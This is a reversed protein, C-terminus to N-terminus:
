AVKRDREEPVDELARLKSVVSAFAAMLEKRRSGEPEVRLEAALTLRAVGLADVYSEKAIESQAGYSEQLRPHKRSDELLETYVAGLEEAKRVMDEASLEEVEYSMEPDMGFKWSLPSEKSGGSVAEPGSSSSAASFGVADRSRLDSIRDEETKESINGLLSEDPEIPEVPASGSAGRVYREHEYPDRPPISLAPASEKPELSAEMPRINEKSSKMPFPNEGFDAYIGDNHEGAPIEKGANGDSKDNRFWSRITEYPSFLRKALKGFFGRPEATMLEDLPDVVPNRRSEPPLVADSDKEGITKRLEAIREKIQEEERSWKDYGKDLAAHRPDGIRIEEDPIRVTESINKALYDDIHDVLKEKRRIEEKIKERTSPDVSESAAIIGPNSDLGWDAVTSDADLPYKKEFDM